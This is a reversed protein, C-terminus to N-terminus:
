EKLIIRYNAEGTQFYMSAGNSLPVLNKPVGLIEERAPISTLSNEDMHYIVFHYKGDPIENLLEVYDTYNGTKSVSTKEQRTAMILGGDFGWSIRELDAIASLKTIKNDADMVFINPETTKVFAFSKGDRSFKGNEIGILNEDSILTKKGNILNVKYATFSKKGEDIIIAANKDGFIKPSLIKNPFYILGKKLPDQTNVLKQMKSNEDNVIDYFFNSSSEEPFDEASEVHPILTLDVTIEKTRWLLFMESIFKSNYGEKEILMNKIGKKQVIKCPLIDCAIKQEKNNIIIMVTFPVKATIMLTGRNILSGWFYYGVPLVIALVLITVKALDKRLEKKDIM